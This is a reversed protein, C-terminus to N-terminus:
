GKQATLARAAIAAASCNRSRGESISGLPSYNGLGVSSSPTLTAYSGFEVQHSGRGCACRRGPRGIRRRVEVRDVQSAIAACRPWPMAPGGAGSRRGNADTSVTCKRRAFKKLAFLADLSRELSWRQRFDVEYAEFCAEGGPFLPRKGKEACARAWRILQARSSLRTKAVVYSSYLNTKASAESEVDAHLVARVAAAPFELDDRGDELPRHDLLDESVQPQVRLRRGPASRALRPM